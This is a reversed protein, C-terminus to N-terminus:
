KEEMQEQLDDLIGDYLEVAESDRQSYALHRLRDIEAVWEELPDSKEREKEAKVEERVMLAVTVAMLAAFAAWAVMAVQGVRVRLWHGM